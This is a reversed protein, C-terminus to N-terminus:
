ATDESTSLLKREGEPKLTKWIAPKIPREDLLMFLYSRYPSGCAMEAFEKRTSEDGLKMSISAFAEWAGTYIANREDQLEKGVDIVFKHFEDPLQACIDSVTEGAGMREWVSRASLRTVLKHLAVYDEQKIKVMKGSGFLSVVVGEKGKRPPLVLAEPLTGAQMQEARPGTWTILNKQGLSSKTLISYASGISGTKINVFGLYVLDDLGGYDVVIRNDPYIIEWLPTYGPPFSFDQYKRNLIATAHVAQDSTFSGRTAIDWQDNAQYGIGLSGDLKDTVTAPETFCLEGCEPQGYNFFKPFPRAVIELHQNVILGRCQRTVPTWIGEYQCRDTYNYIRLPLDPHEQERVHGKEIADNLDDLSFLDTIKTM